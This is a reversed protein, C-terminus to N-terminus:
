KKKSAKKKGAKKKGTKKAAKKGAKKATKKKTKKKAGTEASSGRAIDMAHARAYSQIDEFTGDAARVAYLKKGASSRMVTRKAM